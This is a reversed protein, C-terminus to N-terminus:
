PDVVTHIIRLRLHEPTADWGPPAPEPPAGRADLVQRWVVVPAHTCSQASRELADLRRRAQNM